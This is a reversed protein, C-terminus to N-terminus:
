LGQARLVGDGEGLGVKQKGSGVANNSKEYRGRSPQLKRSARLRDWEEKCKCYRLYAQKLLLELLSFSHFVLSLLGIINSKGGYCLVVLLNVQRLFIFM